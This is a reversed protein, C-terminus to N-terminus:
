RTFIAMVGPGEGLIPSPLCLGSYADLTVHLIMGKGESLILSPLTGRWERKGEGRM